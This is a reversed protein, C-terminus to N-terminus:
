FSYWKDTESDGLFNGGEACGAGRGMHYSVCVPDLAPICLGVLALTPAAFSIPLFLDGIALTGEVRADPGNTLHSPRNLRTGPPNM